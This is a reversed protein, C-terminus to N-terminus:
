KYGLWRLGSGNENYGHGGYYVILLHDLNSYDSRFRLVTDQLHSYSSRSPILYSAISTAGYHRDFVVALRGIEGILRLYCDEWSLLLVHVQKYRYNGLHPNPIRLSRQSIRTYNHDRVVGRGSSNNM